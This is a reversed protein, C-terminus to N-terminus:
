VAINGSNKSTSSIIEFAANVSYLTILCQFPLPKM